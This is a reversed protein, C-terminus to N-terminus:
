PIHTHTPRRDFGFSRRSAIRLARTLETPQVLLNFFFKQEFVHLQINCLADNKM